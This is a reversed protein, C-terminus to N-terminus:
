TQQFEESTVKAITPALSLQENNRTIRKGRKGSWQQGERRRPLVDEHDPESISDAFAYASSWAVGHNCVSNVDLLASDSKTKMACHIM